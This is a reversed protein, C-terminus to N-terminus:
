YCAKILTATGGARIRLVSIPYVTGAFLTLTDIKGDAYTVPVTGDTGVMLARCAGLALDNDSPIVPVTFAIQRGFSANSKGSM